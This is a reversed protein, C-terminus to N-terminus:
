LYSLRTSGADAAGPSGDQCINKYPNRLVSILPIMLLGKETSRVPLARSNRNSLQIIKLPGSVGCGEKFVLKCLKPKPM